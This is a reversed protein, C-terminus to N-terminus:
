PSNHLRDCWGAATMRWITVPKLRASKKMQYRDMRHLVQDLLKVAEGIWPGKNLMVCEARQAAAADTAEARSPIGNRVLSEFVQTAWIVPVHAAECLWLIQEQMEALEAFGLEVALDGRAIMVALPNARGAQVILEPLNAVAQRTEVKLVLPMPPQGPRRARLERQLWFVDQCTQVFSLGVMDANQAVFDLDVLDKTTLAPIRVFTGPFNVGKGVRLRVGDPPTRTVELEIYQGSTSPNARARALIKGDNMLEPM